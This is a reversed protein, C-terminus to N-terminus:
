SASIRGMLGINMESIFVHGDSTEYVGIGLPMMTAVVKDRDELLIRNAYHPNCLTVIKVREM